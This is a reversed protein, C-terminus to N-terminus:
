GSVYPAWSIAARGIVTSQCRSVTSVSSFRSLSSVNPIGNCAVQHASFSESAPRTWPTLSENTIGRAASSDLSGSVQQPAQHLPLRRPRNRTRGKCIKARPLISARALRLDLPVVTPQAACIYTNYASGLCPGQPAFKGLCSLSFLLSVGCLMRDITCAQSRTGIRRRRRM